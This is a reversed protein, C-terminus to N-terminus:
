NFRINVTYRTNKVALWYGYMQQMM